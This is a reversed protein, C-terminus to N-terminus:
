SFPDYSVAEYFLDTTAIAINSNSWYDKGLISRFPAISQNHTFYGLYTNDIYVHTKGEVLDRIIKYNGPNFATWGTWMLYRYGSSTFYGISSEVASDSTWAGSSTPIILFYMSGSYPSGITWQTNGAAPDNANDSLYCYQYTSSTQGIFGLIQYRGYKALNDNLFRAVTGTYVTSGFKELISLHRTTQRNIGVVKYMKFTMGSPVDDFAISLDQLSLGVSQVSWSAGKYAVPFGVIPREIVPSFQCITPSHDNQHNDSVAELWVEVKEFNRYSESFNVSTTSFGGQGDWLVTTDATIIKKGDVRNIRVGNNATVSPSLGIDLDLIGTVEEDIDLKLDTRNVYPSEKLATVTRSYYPAVPRNQQQDFTSTINATPAGNNVGSSTIHWRAGEVLEDVTWSITPLDEATLLKWAFGTLNAPRSIVIYMDGVPPLFVPASYVVGSEYRSSNTVTYSEEKYLRGDTDLKFKSNPLEVGAADYPVYNGTVWSKDAYSSLADAGVYGAPNSNMPYFDGSASADLKGSTASNVIEETWSTTAFSSLDPKNKIYAPDDVDDENWDAQVQDSPVATSIMNSVDTETVYDLDNDLESVATPITPKNQIYSPSSPDNEAWDSQVQPVGSGSGAIEHGMIGTVAGDGDFMLDGSSVLNDLSTGTGFSEILTHDSLSYRFAHTQVLISPNYINDANYTPKISTFWFIEDNERIELKNFYLDERDQNFRGYSHIAKHRNVAENLEQYSPTLDYFSYVETEVHHNNIYNVEGHENYHLSVPDLGTVSIVNYEDISIYEGPYYQVTESGSRGSKVSMKAVQLNKVRASMLRVPSQIKFMVVNSGIDEDRVCRIFQVRLCRSETDPGSEDRKWFGDEAVDGNSSERTYIKLEDISNLMDEDDQQFEIVANIIYLGNNLMMKTSSGKISGTIFNGEYHVHDPGSPLNLGTPTNSNVSKPSGNVGIWHPSSNDVSSSSSSSGGHPMVNFRSMQLSGYVNYVYVDYSAPEDNENELEALVINSGLSDLPIEFPLLRGDFDSACYYRERTGARYVEIHGGSLPKGATNVLQFTPDLLYGYKSEEESTVM